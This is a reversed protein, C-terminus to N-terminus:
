VQNDSPFLNQLMDTMRPKEDFQILDYVAIQKM